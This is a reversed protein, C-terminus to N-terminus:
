APKSILGRALGWIALADCVEALTHSLLFGIVDLHYILYLIEAAVYWLFAKAVAARGAAGAKRWLYLGLLGLVTHIVLFVVSPVDNMFDGFPM